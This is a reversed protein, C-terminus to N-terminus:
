ALRGDPLLGGASPGHVEPRFKGRRLFQQCINVRSAAM